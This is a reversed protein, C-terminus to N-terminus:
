PTAQLAADCEIGQEILPAHGRTRRDSPPHQHFVRYLERERREVIARVGGFREVHVRCAPLEVRVERRDAGHSLPNSREDREIRRRSGVGEASQQGLVGRLAGHYERPVSVSDAGESGRQATNGAHHADDPCTDAGGRSWPRAALHEAREARICSREVRVVSPTDSQQERRVDDRFPDLQLGRADHHVGVQRPCGRPDRLSTSADRADPLACVCHVHSSEDLVVVGARKQTEARAQPVFRTQHHCRHCLGRCALPDLCRQRHLRRRGFASRPLRIIGSACLRVVDGREDGRQAVRPAFPEDARPPV